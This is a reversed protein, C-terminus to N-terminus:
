RHIIVFSLQFPESSEFMPALNELLRLVGSSADEIRVQSM